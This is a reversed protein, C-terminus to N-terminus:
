RKAAFVVSRSRNATAYRLIASASSAAQDVRAAASGSAFAYSASVSAGDDLLFGPERALPRADGTNEDRPQAPVHPQLGIRGHDVADPTEVVAVDAFAIQAGVSRVVGVGARAAASASRAAKARLWRLRSALRELGAIDKEDRGARAITRM